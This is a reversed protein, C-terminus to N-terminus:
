SKSTYITALHLTTKSLLKLKSIYNLYVNFVNFWNLQSYKVCIAEMSFLCTIEVDM